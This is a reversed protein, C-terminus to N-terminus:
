PSEDREPEDLTRVHHVQDKNFRVGLLDTRYVGTRLRVRWTMEGALRHASGPEAAIITEATDGPDLRPFDQGVISWESEIALPYLRISPGESTAIFPDYPRLSRERVLYVDLPVLSRRKSVNTLRLRLVLSEENERRYKPPEIARILELRTAVVALPTVNLDGLQVPQGLAVLNEPPIPPPQDTQDREASRSPVAPDPGAASSPEAIRSGRGVALTWILALTIASAYSLLLVVSWSIRPEVLSDDEEVALHQTHRAHDVVKLDTGSAPGWPQDGPEAGAGSEPDLVVSAPSGPEPGTGTVLPAVSRFIESTRPQKGPKPHPDPEARLPRPAPPSELNPDPDPQEISQSLI